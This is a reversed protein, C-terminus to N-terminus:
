NYKMKQSTKLQLSLEILDFKIIGPYYHYIWYM